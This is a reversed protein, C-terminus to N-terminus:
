VRGKKMFKVPDNLFQGFAMFAKDIDRLNVDFEKHIKLIFRKYDKYDAINQPEKIIEGKTLFIFSRFAHQDFIPYDKPKCIHILFISYILGGAFIERSFNWLEDFTPKTNRYERIREKQEEMLRLAKQNNRNHFHVGMKWRWLKDLFDEKSLDNIYPNYFKEDADGQEDYFQSWFHIFQEWPQKKIM